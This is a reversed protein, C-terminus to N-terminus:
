EADLMPCIFHCYTEDEWMLIYSIYHHEEDPSVLCFQIEGPYGHVPTLSEVYGSLVTGRKKPEQFDSDADHSLWAVAVGLAVAPVLVMSLFLATMRRTRREPQPLPLQAPAQEGRFISFVGGTKCVYAYSESLEVASVVDSVPLVSWALGSDMVLIQNAAIHVQASETSKIWKSLRQGPHRYMSLALFLFAIAVIGAVLCSKSWTDFYVWLLIVAGSLLFPMSLLTMWGQWPLKKRMMLDAVERRASETDPSHYPSTSLCDEPPAIQQEPPIQKRAQEQCYRLMEGAREPSLKELPFVMVLGNRLHLFMATGYRRVQEVRHWPMYTKMRDLPRELMVGADTLTVFLDRVGEVRRFQRVLMGYVLVGCLLAAGVSGILCYTLTLGISYWIVFLLVSILLGRTLLAWKFVGWKSRM